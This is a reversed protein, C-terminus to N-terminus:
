IYPSRELKALSQGTATGDATFLTVTVNTCCEGEIVICVEVDIDVGEVVTYMAEEFYVTVNGGDNDEIFLSVNSNILAVADPLDGVPSITVFIIETEEVVCDDTVDVRICQRLTSSTFTLTSSGDSGNPPSYTYDDDTLRLHIIIDTSVNRM